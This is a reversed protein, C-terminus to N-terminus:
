APQELLDAVGLRTCVDVLDNNLSLEKSLNRRFGIPSAAKYDKRGIQTCHGEDVYANPILRVDGGCHKHWYRIGSGSDYYYESRERRQEPTNSPNMWFDLWWGCGDEFLKRSAGRTTCGLVEWYRQKKPSLFALTGEEPKVAACAGDPLAAFMDAMKRMKERRMILDAHWFALRDECFLFALEMPFHLWMTPLQFRANFDILVAGPVVPPPGVRPDFGVVPTWGVERVLKQQVVCWEPDVNWCLWAHRVGVLQKAWDAAAAEIEAMTMGLEHYAKWHGAGFIYRWDEGTYM